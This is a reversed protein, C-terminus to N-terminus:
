LIYFSAFASDKWQKQPVELASNAAMNKLNFFSMDGHFTYVRPGMEPDKPTEHLHFDLFDHFVKKLGLSSWSGGAPGGSDALGCWRAAGLRTWRSFGPLLVSFETAIGWCTCDLDRVLVSGATGLGFIKRRVFFIGFLSLAQQVTLQILSKVWRLSRSAVVAGPARKQSKPLGFSMSSVMNSLFPTWSVVLARCSLHRETLFSIQVNGNHSKCSDLHLKSGWFFCIHFFTGKCKQM